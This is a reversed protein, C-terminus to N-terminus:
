FFEVYGIEAQHGHADFDGDGLVDCLALAHELLAPELVLRTENAGAARESPECTWSDSRCCCCFNRHASLSKKNNCEHLQM